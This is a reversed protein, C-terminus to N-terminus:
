PRLVGAVASLDRVLGRAAAAIEARESDTLDRWRPRLGSTMPRDTCMAILRDRTGEPISWWAADLRCATARAHEDAWQAKKRRLEQPMPVGVGVTHVYPVLAGANPYHMVRGM